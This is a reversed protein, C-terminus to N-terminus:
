QKKGIIATFGTSVGFRPPQGPAFLTEVRGTTWSLSNTFNWKLAAGAHGGISSNSTTATSSNLIGAGGDILFAFSNPSANLHKFAKSIDPQLAFGGGYYAVNIAPVNFVTSEIFIHNTKAKGYDILDYGVKAVVGPNWSNPNITGNAATFVAMADSSTVVGSATTAPTTAVTIPQTGNQAQLPVAAALGLGLALILGIKASIGANQQAADSPGGFISPCLTHVIVSAAVLITYITAHAPTKLWNELFTPAGTVAALTALGHILQPIKVNMPVDEKAIAEEKNLLLYIRMLKVPNMM